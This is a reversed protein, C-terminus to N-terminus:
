EEEQPFLRNSLSPAFSLSGWCMTALAGQLSAGRVTGGGGEVEGGEGEHKVAYEEGANLKKTLISICALVCYRRLSASDIIRVQGNYYDAVAISGDNLVTIGYPNNFQSQGGAGNTSGATGPTGAVTGVVGDPSISRVCQNDSDTFLITGDPLLTVGFPSNLLADKGSGDKHGPRGPTGAVTRVTGVADVVRICHNCLDAVVVSGDALVAVGNPNYFKAKLRDGDEHGQAGSGAFTRVTAGRDSVDIVRIRHNLQDAVYLVNKKDCFAIGAPNKFKSDKGPGDAFGPEGPTGAYTDVVFTKLCVRRICYNESDTVFAYDLGVVTVFCPNNFLADTGAGDKHGKKGPTGLIRELSKNPRLVYLCDEGMVAVIFRGDSLQKCDTVGKMPLPAGSADTGNFTKVNVTQKNGM